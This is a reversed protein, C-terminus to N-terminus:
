APALLVPDLAGHFFFTGGGESCEDVHGGGAPALQYDLPRLLTDGLYMEGALMLCDEDLAHGHDPVAGGPAFRVLMSVVQQDGCLAQVTVGGGTAAPQWPRQGSALALGDARVRAWWAQELAPLDHGTLRLRQYLLTPAAAVWQARAADAACVLYGQPALPQPAPNGPAPQLAGDIVLLEQALADDPWPLPAGADLRLLQVRMGGSARLLRQQLGPGIDLWAGRERRVTLHQRQAAASRSVRAMLRQRLAAERALPPRLPQLQAALLAYLAPDDTDDTMAAFTESLPDHAM